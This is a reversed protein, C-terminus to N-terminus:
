VYLSHIVLSIKGVLPRRQQGDDYAGTEATAIQGQLQDQAGGEWADM